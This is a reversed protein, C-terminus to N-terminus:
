DVKGLCFRWDSGASSDSGCRNLDVVGVLQGGTLVVRVHDPDWSRSWFTGEAIRRVMGRQGSVPGEYTLYALRHDSLQRAPLEMGIIIPEDIAWTKLSEGVELMLDWHVGKWTHELLVFRGQSPLEPM